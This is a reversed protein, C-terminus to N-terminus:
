NFLGKVSELNPVEIAENYNSFTVGYSQECNTKLVKKAEYKSHLYINSLTFDNSIVLSM